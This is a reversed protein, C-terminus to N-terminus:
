RRRPGRRAEPTITPSRTLRGIGGGVAKDCCRTVPLGMGIVPMPQQARAVLPWASAGGLRAVFEHRRM